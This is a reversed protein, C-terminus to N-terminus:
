RILPAHTITLDSRVRLLDGPTISRWEPDPDMRESAIVVSAQASLRAATAELHTGRAALPATTSTGGPGRSLVFLENEAPHRFAWIETPTTLIFNLATIEVHETLWTVAAAIGAALDQQHRRTEVTILAFVRESDTDGHVLLDGGLQGLRQDLVALDGVQGNHAFLRSDQVFPHTNRMSPRGTSAKRVHAVFTRGRLRHAATAFDTDQWAPRPAKDIIPVGDPSYTGIGFGDSNRRSQEELNDPADLLWFEADIPAAGAHLGFLRCM